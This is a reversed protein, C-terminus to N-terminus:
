CLAENAFVTSPLAVSLCIYSSEANVPRRKEPLRALSFSVFYYHVFSFFFSFVIAANMLTKMLPANLVIIIDGGVINKKKESDCIM